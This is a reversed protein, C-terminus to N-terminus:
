GKTIVEDMNLIMGAVAAYAALEAPDMAPDAPSAGTALLARAGPADARYAALMRDLTKLLVETEHADAARGTALRFAHRLRGEPASGGERLAREALKRAAEVYIPDNLLTLAQLPTNTTSRRVVCFERDPADFVTMTPHPVTRKWYTYLSRRYLDGGTSPLYRTGPYDAAVVIGKYLDQPQYPFVSPGGTRHTLLGAIELAQDRILEAPLRFRPGRALLRNEPDRAILASGAASDQRYTASLVLRKMLAKVNWGSDAFDRALWDLVEPHSPFEGQLGFNDSTKVLGLGFLQQWFRNVVVRATLPHDPKTLWAALGLRNRPAGEPWTGLISEPVGPTVQEGPANYAGRMLVHTPRPPHLEQMVMVFPAERRLALWEERLSALKARDRAFEADTMALSAARVWAQEGPAAVNARMRGLAYPLARSEFLAEIEPGNLGRNWLAVEDLRGAFRKGNPANEWGMRFRYPTPKDTKAEPLALGDNMVRVPIERGDAFIRVWSAHVRMATKDAAGTYVLAVHRWEGPNIRAGESRVRLSYAPFRQSFRFELEGGALRFEMGGGYTTSAPNRAYDIASLLPADEDMASAQIWGSFTFPERRSVPFGKGPAQAGPGPGGTVCANGAIGEALTLGNAPEFEGTTECHVELAAGAPVGARAAVDRGKWVWRKEKGAIKAALQAIARELGAAKEQQQRTPAAIMPVANSVRGDEGIEPVSNFFAYFRYHDRQTIPDYKHDHCRACELTLGLWAMGLTRVRDAVYEVRYEEDIIGGESNIVHNRGFGTAIRQDLTPAPLLDGALQETLFRDYPMNSNFAEIVWDRWRWMSREADNNFGHTDAYRAADLWDMAMREGYASRGLMRDVAAGYAAEGSKRADREFADIQAPSPPLGTLDLSARRLWAGPAAPKSPRLGEADLRKLVFADFPQKAWRPDSVAPEAPRVAPSFAWHRAYQAGESIWRKLMAAQAETLHRNSAAPPMRLAPQAATIRQYLVSQEPKGPVVAARGNRIAAAGEFTDLRLNAMRKKADQGHCHFCNESLIPRVDRGYELRGSEAARAAGAAALACLLVGTITKM